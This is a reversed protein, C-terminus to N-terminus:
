RWTTRSAFPCVDIEKIVIPTQDRLSEM